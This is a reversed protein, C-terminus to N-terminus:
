LLKPRAEQKTIQAIYISTSYYPNETENQPLTFLDM